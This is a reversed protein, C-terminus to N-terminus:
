RRSFKWAVIPLALTAALWLMALPLFLEPRSQALREMLEPRSWQTLMELHFSQLRGDPLHRILGGYYPLLLFLMGYIDLAAAGFAVAPAIWTRAPRPLLSAMGAYLLLAEPVVVAYLYWGNTTSQGITLYGVLAHYAMAALVPALLFSCLGVLRRGNGSFARVAGLFGVTLFAESLHYIWSRMQLFSWAGFWVHSIATTDFAQWWNMRVLGELKAAFGLQRIGVTQIQGTLTGTQQCIFVYWWGATVAAVFLAAACGRAIRKWQARNRFVLWGALVPLTAFTAVFYAKTLLGAGVIFGASLWLRGRGPQESLAVLVYLLATYLVVAPGENGVRCLDIMLGPLATVCAMVGLALRQDGLLRRAAAFGVPIVLSALLLSCMRLWLVRTTLPWEDAFWLPIQMIWYYLPPQQAEYLVGDSAQEARWKVPLKALRLELIAREQRPLEWFQEYSLSYPLMQHATWALPAIELSARVERSIRDIGPLPLSGGNAALHDVYSYHAFEDWGEWLPQIASYFAGRVLFCLWIALLWRGM